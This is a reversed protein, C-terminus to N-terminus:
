ANPMIENIKITIKLQKNWRTNENREDQIRIKVCLVLHRGTTKGM